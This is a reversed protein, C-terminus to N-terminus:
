QEPLLSDLLELVASNWGAPGVGDAKILRDVNGLIQPHCTGDAKRVVVPYDVAKLMEIDNPSDGLAITIINGYLEKYIRNVISVARGKDSDGMLHFFEGQTYHYGRSTIREKLESLQGDNGEFVFPEDYDRMMAREADDMTLGTRDSVEQVSMDGFGKVPFGEGRLERLLSRLDSYPSGLELVQYADIVKRNGDAPISTVKMDAPMFIGGGNESIFPCHNDLEKRWHEIEARTKSTCFILPIGKERIVSLAPLAEHCSYHRDLLTGDLDTYICVSKKMRMNYRFANLGQSFDPCEKRLIFTSM